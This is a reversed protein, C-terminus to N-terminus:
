PKREYRLGEIVARASEMPMVHSFSVLNGPFVINGKMDRFSNIISNHICNFLMQEDSDFIALGLRTIHIVYCGNECYVVYAREGDDLHCCVELARDSVKKDMHDVDNSYYYANYYCAKLMRNYVKGHKSLKYVYTIALKGFVLMFLASAALMLLQIPTLNM